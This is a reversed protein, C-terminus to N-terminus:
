RNSVTFASYAKASVSQESLSMKAHHIGRHITSVGFRGIVTAAGTCALLASATEPLCRGEKVLTEMSEKWSAAGTRGRYSFEIGVGPLIGAPCVDLCLITGMGEHCFRKVERAVSAPDGQWDLIDLYDPMDRGGLRVNIRAVPNSRGPFAGIWALEGTVATARCIKEVAPLCDLYSACGTVNALVKVIRTALTQPETEKTHECRLFVGLVPSEGMGASVIDYELGPGGFFRADETEDCEREVLFNLLAANAALSTKRHKRIWERALTSGRHASVLLDAGPCDEQLAFELGFLGDAACAPLQAACALLAHWNDDSFLRMPLTPRFAALVEDLGRFAEGQPTVSWDAQICNKAMIGSGLTLDSIECTLERLSDQTEGILGRQSKCM